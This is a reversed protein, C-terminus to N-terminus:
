IVLVDLREPGHVGIALTLEIDGRLLEPYHHKVMAACSGSPTVIPDSGEFVSLFHEAAGKAEKM